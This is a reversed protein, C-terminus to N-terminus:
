SGASLLRTCSGARRRGAVWRLKTLHRLPALSAAARVVLAVMDDDDIALTDNCCLADCLELEQSCLCAGANRKPM